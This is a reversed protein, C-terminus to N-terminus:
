SRAWARCQAEIGTSARAGRAGQLEAGPERRMEVVESM